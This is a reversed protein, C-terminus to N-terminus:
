QRVYSGPAPELAPFRQSGLSAPAEAQQGSRDALWGAWHEWWSGERRQAGALWQGADPPTEPNLYYGLGRHEPDAVVTQIHGSSCLVFEPRGSVMQTTRYCSQWPTIHDTRGAVVYTDCDIRSIDIPTGLVTIGGPRVLKNDATMDLMQRHFASSLRTQDANWALIDFAPPDQGLLYNNVWYNWVLDNPRLWSFMSGLQWGEIVGRPRSVQKALALTAPTAFLFMRGDSDCDLMTVTMTASNIRRDGLAALHAQVVATMMGGLCGGMINVDPSGSVQRIVDIAEIVARAYTDYNWQRQAGTPNRWSITFVQIGQKLLYEYMSRGPSLDLAYYKNVQPPVVLLPREYVTGHQPTYQILECVECRHIVAGPSIALNEGLRFPRRDVMSPLGHNGAMDRALNVAGKWVSLGGTDYCRKVAAPNTWFYNTPAMAERVQILAFRLREAAKGELGLSAVVDDVGSGWYLYAQMMARFAPNQQWAQDAFRKDGKEPGVQSRGLAIRLLELGAGPASQLMMQPPGMALRGAFRLAGATRGLLGKRAPAALTGPQQGNPSVGAQPVQDHTTTM